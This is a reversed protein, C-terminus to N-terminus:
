GENQHHARPRSLLIISQLRSEIEAKTRAGYKITVTTLDLLVNFLTLIVDTFTIYLDYLAERHFDIGARQAVYVVIYRMRAVLSWACQVNDVILSSTEELSKPVRIGLIM